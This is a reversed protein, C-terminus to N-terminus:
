RVIRWFKLAEDRHRQLHIIASSWDHFEIGEKFATPTQAILTAIVSDKFTLKDQNFKQEFSTQTETDQGSEAIHKKMIKESTAYNELARTAMILYIIRSSKLLKLSLRATNIFYFTKCTVYGFIFTLAHLWWIDM